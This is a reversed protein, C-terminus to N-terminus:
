KEVVTGNWFVLKDYTAIIFQNNLANEYIVDLIFDHNQLLNNVDNWVNSSLLDAEWLGWVKDNSSRFGYAYDDPLVYAVNAVYSGCRPNTKTYEWFKKMANLHGNSLTGLSTPHANNEPSNFVVIYKAYNEYAIIMDRYLQDPEELFPAQNYKWTIIIGWEKNLSHAAGRCISNTIHRSQNGVYQSLVVDYGALYDYYYFAYDSTFLPLDSSSYYDSYSTLGRRLNEVFIQGAQTYNDAADVLLVARDLQQGGAEDFLYAGLFKDGWQKATTNFFDPDPGRPLLHNKEDYGVYVMMYFDKQHLYNCVRVLAETDETVALSGIIILNAYGEIADAVKYIDKEDGYGVDVGVFVTPIEVTTPADLILNAGLFAFLFGLILLSVSIAVLIGRTSFDNQTISFNRIIGRHNSKLYTGM